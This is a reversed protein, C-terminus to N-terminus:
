VIVDDNADKAELGEAELVVVNLVVIPPKEESAIAMFKRHPESSIGFSEQAYSYLDEKYHAYQGTSAGVKNTITYLVEVYLQEIEKKHIRSEAPKIGVSLESPPPDEARGEMEQMAMLRRNEQKWSLATYSEFFSGDTEQVMQGLYIN